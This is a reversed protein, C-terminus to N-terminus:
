FGGKLLFFLLSLTLAQESLIVYVPLDNFQFVGFYKHYDLPWFIMNGDKHTICDVMIHFLVSLWSITICRLYKRRFLFVALGWSLTVTLISNTFLTLPWYRYAIGTGFLLDNYNIGFLDFDTIKNVQYLLLWFLIELDPIVAATVAAVVERKSRAFHGFIVYSWAAHTTTIM